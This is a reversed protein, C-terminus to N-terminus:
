KIGTIIGIANSQCNSFGRVLYDNFKLTVKETKSAKDQLEKKVDSDIVCYQEEQSSSVDSKVYATDTKFIVGDKEVATVVGTHEGETTVYHIGEALLLYGGVLGAVIMATAILFGLAKM